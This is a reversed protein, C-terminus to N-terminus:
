CLLANLSFSEGVLMVQHGKIIEGRWAGLRLPNDSTSMTFKGKFPDLYGGFTRQRSEFHPAIWARHAFCLKM